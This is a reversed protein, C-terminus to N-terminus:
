TEEANEAIIQRLFYELLVPYQELSYAIELRETKKHPDRGSPGFNVIPVNLQSLAEIPVSYIRGWGALNKELVSLEDKSGQFGFYSLDCVGTFFAAKEVTIHFKNKAETILDNVARLLAEQKLGPMQGSRPPYYPPLFGFMILPGEEKAIRIIERMVAIASERPDPETFESIFKDLRKCFEKDGAKKMARAIMEEVSYVPITWEAGDAPPFGLNSMALRSASIQEATERAAREAINRMQALVAGPSNATAFCNFYVVAAGPITVSYGERLIKHELCIWSPCCQGGAPDFFDPNAEALKLIHSSLLSANVGNYYAGVHSERGLCLFVPMLKGVTGLFVTPNLAGPLGAETPESNVAALYELGQEQQMRALWNIAGRMGASLNEEDPVAVFLLNADFMERNAAFDCLLELEVAIGCKMDMSGRGFLYKGSNLDDAADCDLPASKLLAALRDPDFAAHRLDAYVETDVVDFHGTLIITRKTEKASKVLAIVSFLKRADGELPTPLLLLYEPHTRFWEQSALRGYIFNAAMNENVSSTVGPVAILDKLLKLRSNPTSAM